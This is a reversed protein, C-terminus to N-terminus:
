KFSGNMIRFMQREAKQQLIRQISKEKRVLSSTAKAKEEQDIYLNFIM